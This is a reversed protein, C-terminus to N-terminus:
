AQVEFRANFLLKGSGVFARAPLKGTFYSCYIANFRDWLSVDPCFVQVYVLDDMQMGAKRLVLEVSTMVNRAETELDDPVRNGTEDVGIRGALYLTDGVRVGDSFPAGPTLQIYQRKRRNSKAHRRSAHAATPTSRKKVTINEKKIRTAQQRGISCGILLRQSNLSRGCCGDM